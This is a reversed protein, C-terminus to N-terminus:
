GANGEITGTVEFGDLVEGAPTKEILARFGKGYTSRTTITALRFVDRNDVVPDFPKEKWHENSYYMNFKVALDTFNKLEEYSWARSDHQGTQGEEAVKKLEGNQLEYLTIWYTKQDESAQQSKQEFYGLQVKGSDEHTFVFSYIGDNYFLNYDFVDGGILYVNESEDIGYLEFRLQWIKYDRNDAPTTYAYVVVMNSKDAYAASGFNEDSMNLLRYSVVGESGDFSGYDFSTGGASLYDYSVAQRAILPHEILIENDLYDQLKGARSPREGEYAALFLEEVQSKVAGYYAPFAETGSATISHNNEMTITAKFHEGDEAGHNVRAFGNWQAMKNEEAIQDLAALFDADAETKLAHEESVGAPRITLATKGGVAEAHYSPGANEENGEAYSFDFSVIKAMEVADGGLPGDIGSKKGCAVLSGVLALLVM